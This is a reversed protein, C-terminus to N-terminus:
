DKGFLKNWAKGVSEGLDTVSDVADEYADAKDAVEEATETSDPKKKEQKPTSGFLKGLGLEM